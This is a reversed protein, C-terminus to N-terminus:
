EFYEIYKLDNLNLIDLSLIEIGILKGNKDYDININEDVPITRTAM